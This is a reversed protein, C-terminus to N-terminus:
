KNTIIIDIHKSKFAGEDKFDSSTVIVDIEDFKFAKYMGRTGFKTSDALVITQQSNSIIAKKMDMSLLNNEMLGANLSIGTVGIFAKDFSLEKVKNVVTPGYTEKTKKDIMGGLLYIEANVLRTAADAIPVSATVINVKIDIPLKEIIYAMTSGGDLFITEHEGIMSVAYEAIREKEEQNLSIRFDLSDVYKLAMAGGHFRKIMGMEELATLDSRVTQVTVNFYEALEKTTAKNNDNIYKEMQKLRFISM